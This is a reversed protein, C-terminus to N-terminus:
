PAGMDGLMQAAHPGAVARSLDVVVIDDLPQGATM